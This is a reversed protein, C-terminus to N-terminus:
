LGEETFLSSSCNFYDLPSGVVGQCRVYMHLGLSSPTMNAVLESELPNFGFPFLGLTRLHDLERDLRHIDHIKSIKRIEDLELLLPMAVILGAPSTCKKATICAYDFLYLENITMQSLINVFILNSEDRNNYSCASILLGAFMEQVEEQDHWSGHDLTIYVLRPNVEMGM